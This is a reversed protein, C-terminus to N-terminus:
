VHKFTIHIEAEVNTKTEQQMAGLHLYTGFTVVPHCYSCMVLCPLHLYYIFYFVPPHCHEKSVIQLIYAKKELIIYTRVTYESFSSQCNM